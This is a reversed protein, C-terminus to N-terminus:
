HNTNIEENLEENLKQIYQAGIKASNNINYVTKSRIEKIQESINKDNKNSSIILNPIEELRNPSVVYGIKERLSIEIPV